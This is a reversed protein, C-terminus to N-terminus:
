LRSLRTRATRAVTAGCQSLGRGLAKRLVPAFRALTSQRQPTKRVPADDSRLFLRVTRRHMKLTRAIAAIPYHQEHLEKVQNFREARREQGAKPEDQTPKEDAATLATHEDSYRQKIVQHATKLLQYKRGLFTELAERVNKLLHFRDAVQRAEPAGRKAADAYAPSRDRSVVEIEPHAELWTKLTEAEREPLLDIAQHRELDVLITGYTQGKRFAFDDVGLIKITTKEGGVNCITTKRVARLLSDKSAALNLKLGTRSGGRRGLAFGLLIIAESLRVTRRAYRAAVKPLRECFVKRACLENQCRFKRTHLELRVAVGHWPLDALRRLYRTKLSSSPENCQPCKATPQISAVVITISDDNSVFHKIEIAAPDALM